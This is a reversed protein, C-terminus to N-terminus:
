SRPLLAAMTLLGLPPLLSKRKTSAAPHGSVGLLIAALGPLILLIHKM